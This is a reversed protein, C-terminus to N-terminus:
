TGFYAAHVVRKQGGDGLLELTKTAASILARVSPMERVPSCWWEFIMMLMSM